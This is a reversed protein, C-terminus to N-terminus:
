YGLVIHKTKNTIL